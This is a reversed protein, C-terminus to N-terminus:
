RSVVKQRKRTETEMLLESTGITRWRSENKGEDKKKTRGNTHESFFIFLCPLRALSLSLRLYCM